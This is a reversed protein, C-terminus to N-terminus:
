RFTPNFPQCSDPKNESCGVLTLETPQNDVRETQGPVRLLSMEACIRLGHSESDLSYIISLAEISSIVCLNNSTVTTHVTIRTNKNGDSLSM